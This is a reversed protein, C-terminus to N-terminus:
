QGINKASLHIRELVGRPSPEVRWGASEAVIEDLTQRMAFASAMLRANAISVTRSIQPTTANERSYVNALDSQGDSITWPGLNDDDIQPQGGDDELVTWPGPSCENLAVTNTSGTRRLLAVAFKHAAEIHEMIIKDDSPARQALAAGLHSVIEEIHTTM